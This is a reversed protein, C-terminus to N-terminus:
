RGTGALVVQYAVKVPPWELEVGIKAMTATVNVGQAEPCEIITLDPHERVFEQIHGRLAKRATGQWYLCCVLQRASWDPHRARMREVHGALDFVNWVTYIPKVLDLKDLL